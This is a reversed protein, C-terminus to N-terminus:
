MMVYWMCVGLVVLEETRSYHRTTQRLSLAGQMCGKQHCVVASVPLSFFLPFVLVATGATLYMGDILQNISPDPANTVGVSCQITNDEGHEM